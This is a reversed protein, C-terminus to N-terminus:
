QGCHSLKCVASLLVRIVGEPSPLASMDAASAQLNCLLLKEGALMKFWKGRKRGLHLNNWSSSGM